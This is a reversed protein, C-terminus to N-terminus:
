SLPFPSFGTGDEGRRNLLAYDPKPPPAVARSVVLAHTTAEGGAWCPVLLSRRRQLALWSGFVSAGQGVGHTEYEYRCRSLGHPARRRHPQLSTGQHGRDYGPAACDEVIQSVMRLRQYGPLSELDHWHKGHIGDGTARESARIVDLVSVQHSDRALTYGGKIGHHSLLLGAKTLRQLIKALAEQPFGYLDALDKASLSSERSQEALHKVAILGYWAKRTLLM